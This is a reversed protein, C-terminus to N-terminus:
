TDTDKKYWDLLTQNPNSVLVVYYNFLTFDLWHQSKTDCPAKLFDGPDFNQKPGKWM